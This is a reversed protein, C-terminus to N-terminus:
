FPYQIVKEEELKYVDLLNPNHQENPISDDNLYTDLQLFFSLLFQCFHSQSVISSYSMKLLDFGIVGQIRLKLWLSYAM